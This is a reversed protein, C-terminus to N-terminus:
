RRHLLAPLTRSLSSTLLARETEQVLAAAFAGAGQGVLRQVVTRRQPKVRMMRVGVKGLKATYEFAREFDGVEDILGREKADEGWFVEGSAWERVREVPVRRGEAVIKLFHEFFWQVMADEKEQEVGTPEAFPLGAGKLPGTKTVTVQVGLKDLLERAVPRLTIVGISGVLSARTAIIHRASMALYYGGSAGLGRIYAVVPKKAALKQLALLLVDSVQASGGPSDIDLLVAAVNRNERLSKIAQEYQQSRIASGITGHLELVAVRRQWPLTLNM